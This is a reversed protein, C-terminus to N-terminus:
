EPQPSPQPPPPDTRSALYHQLLVAAALPDVDEKRGRVQGQQERIATLVRATSMREDWLVVPVGGHAEIKQALERVSQSAATEDGEPSLPLGVVVGVPSHAEIVELLRKLPFRKGRRRTLTTLPSAITQYEDTLAVGIRVTGWDVALLRGLRPLNADGTPPHARTPVM